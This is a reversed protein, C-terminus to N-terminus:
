SGMITTAFHGEFPKIAPDFPFAEQRMLQRTENRVVTLTREQWADQHLAQNQGLEQRLLLRLTLGNDVAFDSGL